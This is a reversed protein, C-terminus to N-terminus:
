YPGEDDNLPKVCGVWLNDSLDEESIIAHADNFM